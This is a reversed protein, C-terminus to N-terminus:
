IFCKKFNLEDIIDNSYIIQYEKIPLLIPNKGSLYDNIMNDVNSIPHYPAKFNHVINRFDEVSVNDYYLLLYMAMIM